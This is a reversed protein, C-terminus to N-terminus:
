GLSALHEILKDIPLERSKGTALDKLQATGAKWEEDGVIVAFRHGRRDAYKLQAGLKKPDPYLEVPVGAARLRSAVVIHEDLRDADFLILLVDAGASSGALRDLQQLADLLRDVGLSGGIGPLQQNTYVNALDDYRGGSLISGIAPLDRLFTEFVLGTYYDLGRAISVDLEYAGDPTGAAQAGAVVAALREVGSRGSETDGVLETLRGIVAEDTGTIDALALIEQVQADGAGAAGRLENAVREPGIKPLKDLARLVSSTRGLLELRELLGDLIGRHNVRVVAEPVELAEMLEVVVLITEIDSAASTTGITDFDCQLFERYRGRQPNEGRWVAGVHYRKFPMGLEGAHQAVFRALPVTLDFRMAVDRGGQDEFRFMQKDTENGGKGLLIESYELAPTDIPTFGFSRYVKKATDIIRERPIALEPLFDRFGKLTRPAIRDSSM